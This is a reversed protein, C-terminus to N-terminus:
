EEEDTGFLISRAQTMMPNHPGMTKRWAHALPHEVPKPHAYARHPTSEMLRWLEAPPLDAFQRFVGRAEHLPHERLRSLAYGLPDSLNGSKPSAVYLVWSVFAHVSAQVELLEKQVKPHVDNQQLLVDLEWFPPVAEETKGAGCAHQTTSTNKKETNQPHKFSNLVTGNADAMHSGNADAVAEMQTWDIRGDADAMNTGNADLPEDLLVRFARPMSEVRLDAYTNSDPIPMEMLFRSLNGGRQEKWQPNLWAQVTKYRGSGILEAMEQYGGKFTVLDRREGTRSNIFAMDRAVTVLWAQAPTLNLEHISRTIFFHTIHIDGLANIIRRHLAQALQDTELTHAAGAELRVIDMVTNLPVSSRMDEMPTLLEMVDEVSLLEQLAKHLDLNRETMSRIRAHIALADMRTLRPTMFVQYRIPARHPRGDRGRRFRRTDNDEARQVLGHLHGQISTHKLLRWFAGHSLASFRMVERSHLPKADAQKLGQVRWAAQHFGIYLWIAKPGIEMGLRRLYGKVVVQKHPQVIRDYDLWQVPQIDFETEEEAVKEQEDEQPTESAVFRVSVPPDLIGKLINQVTSTLRSELWDRADANHASIILVNKELSVVNTNRVWTDFPARPMDAQLQQLVQQWTEELNIM